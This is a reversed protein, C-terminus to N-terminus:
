PKAALDALMHAVDDLWIRVIDEYDGLGKLLPVCRIGGRRLTSTWSEPNNGALENSASLGAVIMLPVLALKEIGAAKCERIVDDLSPKAMLAGLLVQREFRRCLTATADYAAQADPQRSGHAV